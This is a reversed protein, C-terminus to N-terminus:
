GPVKLYLNILAISFIEDAHFQGSHTIIPFNSNTIVDQVFTKSVEVDIESKTFNNYMNDFYSMDVKINENLNNRKM